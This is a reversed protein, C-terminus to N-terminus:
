QGVGTFRKIGFRWLTKYLMYAILIWFIQFIMVHFIQAASLKSQLSLIPYYVIYPFPTAFSITQLFKPFFEIPLIFGAFVLITVEVVQQFGWFDTLWFATLGLVMKFTFSLIFALAIILVSSIILFINNPLSILHPFLLWLIVFMCVGFFGQVSRWPLEDALKMMYYSVPKLLYNVLGGERIDRIAVDEEIHAIIFAGALILLLYYASINSISWGGVVNGKEKYVAIWFIMLSVPNLISGLFWVFIRSRYNLTHQSALGLIKFFKLM